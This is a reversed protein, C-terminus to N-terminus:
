YLQNGASDRRKEGNSKPSMGPVRRPQEYYDGYNHPVRVEHEYRELAESDRRKRLHTEEFNRKKPEYKNHEPRKQQTGSEHNNEPSTAPKLSNVSEPIETDHNCNRRM